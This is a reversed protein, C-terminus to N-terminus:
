LIGLSTNVIIKLAQLMKEMSMGSKKCRRMTDLGPLHVFGYKFPLDHTVTYHLLTYMLHNCVFTGCFNSICAKIKYRHLEKLLIELPLLSMYAERGQPVIPVGRRKEKRNDKTRCDDINIAFRELSIKKGKIAVGLSLVLDPEVEMIKSILIEASEGYVTPLVLPYIQCDKFEEPNLSRVVEMSPNIKLKDFPDFGSIIIKKM